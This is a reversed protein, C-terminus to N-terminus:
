EFDLQDFVYQRNFLNGDLKPIMKVSKDLKYFDLLNQIFAPGLHCLTDSKPDNPTITIELALEKIDSTVYHPSNHTM